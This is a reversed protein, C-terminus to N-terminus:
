TESSALSNDFPEAQRTHQVIVAVQIQFESCSTADFKLFMLRGLCVHAANASKKFEVLTSRDGTLNDTAHGIRNNMAARIVVACEEARADAQSKASEADNVDSTAM